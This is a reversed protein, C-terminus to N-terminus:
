RFRGDFWRKLADLTKSVPDGRRRLVMQRQTAAVIRRRQSRSLGETAVVIQRVAGDDSWRALWPSWTDLVMPYRELGGIVIAEIALGERRVLTLVEEIVEPSVAGAWWLCTDTRPKKPRRPHFVLTIGEPVVEDFHVSVGERTTLVERHAGVQNQAEMEM